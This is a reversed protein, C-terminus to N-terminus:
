LQPGMSFVLPKRHDPHHYNPLLIAFPKPRLEGVTIHYLPGLTALSAPPLLVMAKSSVQSFTYIISDSPMGPLHAEPLQGDWALVVDGTSRPPEPQRRHLSLDSPSPPTPSPLTPIPSPSDRHGDVTEYDPPDERPVSSM